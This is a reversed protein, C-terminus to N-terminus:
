QRRSMNWFVAIPFEIVNQLEARYAAPASFQGGLIYNVNDHFALQLEDALKAREEATRARALKTILETQREDCTWGSYDACNYAVGPNALPNVLDVGNWIINVVSWGGENVPGRNFRRQAVTAYDSTALQVNFGARKMQDAIVLGMPNLLASSQSHLFVVPENNYGSERLLARARETGANQFIAAGASSQSPTNCMYLSECSNLYMEPPLGISAVVEEQIVAAQAARRVLPNNFPPQAHNLGIIAMIQGAGSPQALTINRNRRMPAIFDAPIIELFDMENAQLAAVRTAQDPMSILDVRDFHVVKGGALGSAPEARPHYRPNRRFTAREGPRWGAQDFLFPGSGVVEPVAASAPLNALRAPMMVPITHGPKGLAELVYAYPERLKLEFTRADIVNLSEAVRMIQVGLAERQAWRRISAVADEATVPKGDSWELGDRLHFRYTLSDDSITYTDVMQPQYNGDADIAFLTDYVLYAFVRTANITTVIPDLVQLETNLSVRLTQEARAAGLAASLAIPVLALARAMRRLIM